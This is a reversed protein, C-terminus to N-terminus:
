RLSGLSSEVPLYGDACDICGLKIYGTLISARESAPIIDIEGHKCDLKLFAPLALNEISHRIGVAGGSCCM